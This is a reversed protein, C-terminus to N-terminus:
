LCARDSSFDGSVEQLPRQLCRVPFSLNRAERCCQIVITEGRQLHYDSFIAVSTAM